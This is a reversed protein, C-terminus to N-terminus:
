THLSFGLTQSRIASYRNLRTSPQTDASLTVEDEETEEGDGKATKELTKEPVNQSLSVSITRDLASDRVEAKEKEKERM